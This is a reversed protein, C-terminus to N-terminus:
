GHVDKKGAPEAWSIHKVYTVNPLTKIGYPHVGPIGNLAMYSKQDKRLAAVRSQPDLLNGFVIADSPCTQECAVRIEGDQIKRKTEKARHKAERVRQFCFNCKEMVGRTRVTVDPNLVRPNRDVLRDGVVNWKHTWWNFRRVKYPCANACYRTGICRNYTMSNIGEPDHQTAYVPCVAECPAHSCQQCMMPQVTVQPNDVDGAFYRDLRIWHMERGLLIQERGVMPVNNETACAVMCAGCGTCKSLDVSLGWRHEVDKYLAPYLDPVDDM